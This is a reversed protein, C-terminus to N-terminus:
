LSVFLPAPVEEAAMREMRSAPPTSNMLLIPHAEFIDPSLKFMGFESSASVGTWLCRPPIAASTCRRIPLATENLTAARAVGSPSTATPNSTEDIM